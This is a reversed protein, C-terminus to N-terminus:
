KYKEILVDTNQAGLEKARKLYKIAEAKQKKEGYAIGMVKITEPDDPMIKIAESCNALCDDYLALLLQLTAQAYLYGFKEESTTARAIATAGDELAQKNLKSRQEAQMRVYYFNADLNSPGVLKEYEMYSLAARRAQGANDLYEAYALIYPAAEITHPEPLRVIASDLLAIVDASEGGNRQLMDAALFFTQYNAIESANVTQYKDFAEAYKEQAALIHGQQLLYIPLPQTAYANQAAELATDLTWSPWLNGYGNAIHSYMLISQTNYIESVGEGGIAIARALDADAAAYNGHNVQFNAREALVKNNNPFTALLDETATIVLASDQQSRLMMYVFSFADDESTTPIQKAIHIATLEKNLASLSNNTLSTACNIDIACATTADKQVNKQVIAVAQGEANLLPCGFYQEENPASIEYYTHGNYPDAATVTATTPLSKKDTSYYALQLQDDRSATAEAPTLGVLKKTPVDTTFRVLDDTASAGLIRLVEARQGQWNIVEARSAGKFIQYPAVGVGDQGVFFGYANTILQGNADYTFINFVAKNLDAPKQAFTIIATLACLILSLTRKM